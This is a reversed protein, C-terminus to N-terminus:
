SKGHIKDFRGLRNKFADIVGKFIFRLYNKKNKFLFLVKCLKYLITKLMFFSKQHLLCWLLNRVQYYYRLPSAVGVGFKKGKFTFLHLNEAPQHALVAKNCQILKFGLKNMRIFYEWDVVDIFLAENFLGVKQFAEKTFLVGSQMTITKDEYPKSSVKSIAREVQYRPSLAGLQELGFEDIYAKYVDLINNNFQSDQDMSVIFQYGYEISKEFGINLAKAIGTNDLLPIYELSFAQILPEFLQVNDSYSNDIVFVKDFYHIYSSINEIVDVGPNYAVVVCSTNKKM